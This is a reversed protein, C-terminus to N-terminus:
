VGAEEADGGLVDDDVEGGAEDDRAKSPRVHFLLLLLLLQGDENM